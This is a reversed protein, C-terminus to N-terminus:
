PRGGSLVKLERRRRAEDSKKWIEPEISELIVLLEEEPIEGRPDVLMVRNAAMTAEKGRELGAPITVAHSGGVRIVARRSKM